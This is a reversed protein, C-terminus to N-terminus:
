GLTFDTEMDVSIDCTNFTPFEYKISVLRVQRQWNLKPITFNFPTLGRVSEFFQILINGVPIAPNLNTCDGNQPIEFSEVTRTDAFPVAKWSFSFKHKQWNEGDRIYKAYGDGYQMTIVRDSNEVANGDYSPSFKEENNSDFPFYTNVAM